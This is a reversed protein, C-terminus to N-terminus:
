GISVWMVRDPDSGTGELRGGSSLDGSYSGIQDADTLLDDLGERSEQQRM